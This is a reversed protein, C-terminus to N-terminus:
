RFLDGFTVELTAEHECSECTHRLADYQPGPTGEGVITLIESRAKLGMKRAATVGLIPNGGLSDLVLSLMQTNMEPTTAEPNKSAYDWLAKEDKGTAWHFEFPTGNSLERRQQPSDSTRIEIDNRLDIVAVQEKSCAPCTLKMELEDGYTARSIALLLTERDGSVLSMLVGPDVPEGGLSVTGREILRAKRDVFHKGRSAYEEDEGNLERVEATDYEQGTVANTLGVPLTVHLADFNPEPPEPAEVEPSGGTNAQNIVQQALHHVNPDTAPDLGPAEEFSADTPIRMPPNASM